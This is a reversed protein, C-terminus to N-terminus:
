NALVPIEFERILAHAMEHALVHQTVNLSFSSIPADDEPSTSRMPRFIDTELGLIARDIAEVWNDEALPGLMHKRLSSMVADRWISWISGEVRFTMRRETTNVYIFIGDRDYLLSAFLNESIDNVHDDVSTTLTSESLCFFTDVNYRMNLKGVKADLVMLEDANIQGAIDSIQIEFNCDFEEDAYIEGANMGVLILSQALFMAIKRSMIYAVSM